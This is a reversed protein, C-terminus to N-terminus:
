PAEVALQIKGIEDLKQQLHAKDLQDFLLGIFIKVRNELERFASRFANVKDAEPGVVAAPDALGWHASLPQGPWIPCVENAAEDCVTFVFDMRPADPGEFEKWSKSRPAEVLPINLRNLIDLAHQNVTGNPFSGASYGRFKGRGWYNILAEALISRASNGTCLFLVNIPTDNM